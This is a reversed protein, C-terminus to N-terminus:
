PLEGALVAETAAPARSDAALWAALVMAALLLCGCAQVAIGPDGPIGAALPGAVHGLGEFTLVAGFVAGARDGHAVDMVLATTSPVAVGLGLAALAAVPLALLPESAGGLVLLAIGACLFAPPLMFGRGLRHGAVGALVLGLGLAAGAPALGLVEARFSVDLSDRGFARFVSVLGAIAASQALMIAGAAAIRRDFVAGIRAAQGRPTEPRSPKGRAGSFLPLAGAVALCAIAAAAAFPFSSPLIAGLALAAAMGAGTAVTLGSTIRTRAAPEFEEAAGAYIAPWFVASAAGYAFACLLVAPPAPIGLLMSAQAGLIAALAATTAGGWGFRDTLRGGPAQLLLKGGAYASLALAPLYRGDYYQHRFFSQLGVLFVFVFAFDVLFAAALLKRAGPALMSEVYPRVLGDVRRM